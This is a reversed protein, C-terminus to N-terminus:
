PSVHTLRWEGPRQDHHQLFAASFANTSSYGVRRAIETISLEGAQLFDRALTMRWTTLYRLPPEGLAREFTRAFAARSMRCLSALEPVTWTNEPQSHIVQLAAGLRADNAARFWAPPAPSQELSARLAYVILLDLLRDLM